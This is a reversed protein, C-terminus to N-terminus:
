IRAQERIATSLMGGIAWLLFSGVIVSLMAKVREPREPSEPMNPKVFDVLYADQRQANIRATELFTVVSQYATTAFEHETMLGEWALLKDNAPVDGANAALHRRVDGIQQELSAIRSKLTKVPASEPRMFTLAAGLEARTQTMQQTLGLVLGGTAAASQTPDVDGYTRRFESMALRAAKLRDEATAVEQKAFTIADEQQRSSIANLLKESQAIISSVILQAEEPTFAEARISMVTSGPQFEVTVHDLFYDLFTERSARTSLRSFFDAKDTAWIRRLGITSELQELMSQSRVYEAVVGAEGAPVSGGLGGGLSSLAAGILDARNQGNSSQIVIEAHSIYRPTAILGFYLMGLLSPVVVAVIFSKPWGRPDAVHRPTSNRRQPLSAPPEAEVAPVGEHLYKILSKM